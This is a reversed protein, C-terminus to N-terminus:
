HKSANIADNHDIAATVQLSYFVCVTAEGQIYLVGKPFISSRLSHPGSIRSICFWNHKEPTYLTLKFPYEDLKQLIYSIYYQLAPTEQNKLYIVHNRICNWAETKAQVQFRFLKGQSSRM